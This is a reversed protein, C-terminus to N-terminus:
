AHSFNPGFKALFFLLLAVTHGFGIPRLTCHHLEAGSQKLTPSSSIAHEFLNQDCARGENSLINYHSNKQSIFAVRAAPAYVLIHTQAHSVLDFYTQM